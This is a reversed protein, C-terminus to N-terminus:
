ARHGEGAVGPCKGLRRSLLHSRHSDSKRRCKEFAPAAMAVAAMAFAAFSIEPAAVAFPEALGMKTTTAAVASKAATEAAAATRLGATM